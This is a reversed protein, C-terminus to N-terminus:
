HPSSGMKWTGQIDSILTSPHPAILSPLSSWLERGKLQEQFQWNLIAYLCSVLCLRGQKVSPKQYGSGRVKHWFIRETSGNRQRCYYLSSNWSTNTCCANPPPCLCAVSTQVSCIWVRGAWLIQQSGKLHNRTIHSIRSFQVGEVDCSRAASRVQSNRSLSCGCASPKTPSCRLPPCRARCARWLAFISCVRPWPSRPCLTTRNLPVIM